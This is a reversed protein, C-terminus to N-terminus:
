ITDVGSKQPNRKEMENWVWRLSSYYEDNYKRRAEVMIEVKPRIPGKHDDFYDRAVSYFVDFDYIKKKLGSCFCEISMLYDTYTKYEESHSEYAHAEVETPTLRNIKSLTGNQLDQFAEITDQQAKRKRDRYYTVVGVIIPAVTGVAIITNIILNGLEYM